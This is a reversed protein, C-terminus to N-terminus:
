AFNIILESMSMGFKFFSVVTALAVTIRKCVMLLLQNSVLCIPSDTLVLIVTDLSLLRRM